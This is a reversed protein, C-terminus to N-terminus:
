CTQSIFELENQLNSFHGERGRESGRTNCESCSRITEEVDKRIDHWWYQQCVTDLTREVGFRGGHVDGHIEEIM